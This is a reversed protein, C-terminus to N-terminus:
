VGVPPRDLSRGASRATLARAAFANLNDSLMALGNRGQAEAM